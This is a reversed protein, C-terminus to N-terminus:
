YLLLAAMIAACGPVTYNDDGFPLLEVFATVFSILFLRAALDGLGLQSELCGTAILWSALGFSVLFASLVFALTGVKSKSGDSWPWKDNAGWKRGVLDAMGDGAAMTSMAIVGM